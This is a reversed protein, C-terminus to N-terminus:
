APRAPRPRLRSLIRKRLQHVVSYRGPVPQPLSLTWPKGAILHRDLMAHIMRLQLTGVLTQRAALRRLSASPLPAVGFRPLYTALAYVSACAMENDLWEIMRSSDLRPGSAALLYAADLLAAIFSPHVPRLTLDNFWSTAIYALQLERALRRVPRGHFQSGVSRSLVHPVSFVTGEVLPSDSPFLGRHLEVVTRRRQHRLPPGHQHTPDPAPDPETAYGSDLLAAEVDACADVPILIDIDAMPRLHEAPYLEESSSIGKLLVPQVQLRACADIVELATDVLDGHRVKATLDAGLLTDRWAPPVLDAYERTARYLLPGLGGDMAWRFQRRDGEDDARWGFGAGDRVLPVGTAAYSILQGILPLGSHLRTAPRQYEKPV